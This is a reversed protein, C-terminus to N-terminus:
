AGPEATEAPAPPAPAYAVQPLSNCADSSESVIDSRVWSGDALSWWVQGTAGTAQGVAEVTAGGALSGVVAYDVGPGGRLNVSQADATLTCGGGAPPAAAGGSVADAGLGLPSVVVAEAVRVPGDAGEVAGFEYVGPEGTDYHLMPFVLNGAAAEDIPIVANSNWGAQLPYSALVPGPSGGNNSHIAIWGELDILAGPITIAGNEVLQAGTGLNLSPAAAVAFTIVNGASDRVPGDAGEVTGFEYEGEVGTDVHLMPWLVATPDGGDLTVVVDLNSGDTVATQGLVPGPGGANDSHIVLWGPGSSLVSAVNVTVPGELANGDGGVAIQPSMRVHPVTWVPLTAVQGNARVPGDAGEVAGFEYV